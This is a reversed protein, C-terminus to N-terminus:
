RPGKLSPFRAELADLQEDIGKLQRKWAAADPVGNEISLCLKRAERLKAAAALAAEECLAGSRLLARPARLREQVLEAQKALDRHLSLRQELLPADSPHNQWRTCLTRVEELKALAADLKTGAAALEAGQPPPAAADSPALEKLLAEAEGLRVSAIDLDKEFTPADIAVKGEKARADRIAHFLLVSEVSAFLLAAVVVLNLLKLSRREQDGAPDPVGCSPSCMLGEATEEACLSCIPNRCKVCRVIASTDPHFFCSSSLTGRATGPIVIPRMPGPTPGEGAPPTGSGSRRGPPALVAPGDAQHARLIISPESLAARRKGEGHKQVIESVEDLVSGGAPKAGRVPLNGSSPANLSNMCEPSCYSIGDVSLM